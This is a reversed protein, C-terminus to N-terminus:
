PVLLLFSLMEEWKKTLMEIYENNKKTGAETINIIIKKQGLLGTKTGTTVLKTQDLIDLTKELEEHTILDGFISFNGLPIM